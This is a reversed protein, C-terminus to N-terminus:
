KKPGLFAVLGLLVTPQTKSTGQLGHLSKPKFNVYAEEFYKFGQPARDSAGVMNITQGFGVDLHFGVPAPARDISIKGLSVHANNARVDFNRLGNFGSDPSNFSGDVYGDFLFSFDM